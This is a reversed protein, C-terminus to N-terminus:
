MELYKKINKFCIAEVIEKLLEDDKEFEGSDVLNGIFSCLIRRFYEHRAYSLFSRSDTLMGLSYALMGQEGLSTLHDTIGRKHDNLWWATGFQVKGQVGDESFCQPLTSLVINDKPNLTYLITKPLSAENNIDNLLKSIHSSIEFDNTIDFGSDPGTKSQMVENNNRLAGIHLQMVWNKDNYEKALQKLTFFKYKEAESKSISDGKLIRSFILSVEAEDTSFYELSELSHDSLKCGAENFYSIRLKIAKLFDSYTKIDISAVNSLKEIYDEFDKNLLNLSKDPRFTPLVKFTLDSKEGLLKHYELDDIPDDTTCILKVNSNEIFKVPSLNEDKIKKNCYNYIEESNSEKLIENVGFFNKLELNTWHYLPSGILRECTKAWMKFKSLDDSDGTVYKEPVGAYRMARWKYHDFGLFIKSINDFTNDEYIEKASLHCHYDYIPANKAVSHYLSQATKGNLIFDNDSLLMVEILNSLIIKKVFQNYCYCFNFLINNNSYLM